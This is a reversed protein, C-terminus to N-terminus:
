PTKEADARGMTTGMRRPFQRVDVFRNWNSRNCLKNISKYFFILVYYNRLPNTVTKINSLLPFSFFQALRVDLSIWRNYRYNENMLKTTKKKKKKRERKRVQIFVVVSSSSRWLRGNFIFGNSSLIFSNVM